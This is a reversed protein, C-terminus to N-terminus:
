VRSSIMRKDIKNRFTSVETMRESKNVLNFNPAPKTEPRSEKNPMVKSIDCCIGVEGVEVARATTGVTAASGTTVGSGEEVHACGVTRMIRRELGTACPRSGVKPGGVGSGVGESVGGEPVGDLAPVMAESSESGLLALLLKVPVVSVSNCSGM